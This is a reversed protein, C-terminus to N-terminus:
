DLKSMMEDYQSLINNFVRSDKEEPTYDYLQFYIDEWNKFNINNDKNFNFLKINLKHPCFKKDLLEATITYKWDTTDFSLAKCFSQFYKDIIDISKKDTPDSLLNTVMQDDVLSQKFLGQKKLQDFFNHCNISQDLTAFKCEEKNSPLKLTSVRFDDLDNFFISALDPLTQASSKVMPEQIKNSSFVNLQYKM